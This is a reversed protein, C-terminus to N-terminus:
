RRRLRQRVKNECGFLVATHRDAGLKTQPLSSIHALQPSSEGFKKKLVKVLGFQM